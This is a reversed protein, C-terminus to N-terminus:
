KEWPSFQTMCIKESVLLSFKWIVLNSKLFLTISPYHPSDNSTSVYFIIAWIMKKKKQTYVIISVVGISFFMM